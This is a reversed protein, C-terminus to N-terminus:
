CFLNVLLFVDNQRCWNLAVITLFHPYQQSQYDFELNQAQKKPGWLLIAKLHALERFIVCYLKWNDIWLYDCDVLKIKQITLRIKAILILYFYSTLKLFSSIYLANSVM